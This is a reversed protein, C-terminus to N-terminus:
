SRRFKCGSCDFEQCVTCPNFQEPLTSPLAEFAELMLDRYDLVDGTDCRDCMARVTDLAKKRSISDDKMITVTRERGSASKRGKM